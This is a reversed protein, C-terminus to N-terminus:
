NGADNLILRREDHDDNLLNTMYPVASKKYRQTKIRRNQFRKSKRKKMKHESKVKQFIDKLKENKLCNKAFKLCSSERRDDLTSLNLHKLGNKYDTYRKGMIVRVASKQVRELDRRNKGTLSSHWVVASQDLISRVYTLYISRLDRVNKTFRAARNLLQMRKYSKKVLETTNKNWKLDDTIYTGLLKVEKVIEINENEVSLKTTFQFKKSFNFIM